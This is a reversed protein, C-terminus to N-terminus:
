RHLKEEFGLVTKGVGAGGMTPDDVNADTQNRDHLDRGAKLTRKIM